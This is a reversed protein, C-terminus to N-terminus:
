YPRLIRVVFPAYATKITNIRNRGEKSDQRSSRYGAINGYDYAHAAGKM